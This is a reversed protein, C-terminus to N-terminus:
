SKRSLTIPAGALAPVRRGAPGYTAPGRPAISTSVERLLTEAVSRATAIVALNASLIRRFRAQRERLGAAESDAPPLTERGLAERLADAAAKKAEALRLAETVQGAELLATEESLIAELADLAATAGNHDPRQM